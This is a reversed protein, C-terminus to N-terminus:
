KNILEPLITKKYINGYKSFSGPYIGLKELAQVLWFPYTDSVKIELIVEDEQFYLKGADGMSLDLVEQRSRVAFDFTMRLEQDEIGYMAIRDYALYLRAIPEYRELFYNIERGIQGHEESVYGRELSEYAEFLPLAIRRKYVIGRYKKKIELFVMDTSTPIGYSRLRLKEKYVPKEISARILDYQQTDYYLNCITSKGYQDVQMYSDAIERFRKYQEQNLLYKKEYRKFIADKREM